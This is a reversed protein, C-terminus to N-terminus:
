CCMICLTSSAWDGAKDIIMTFLDSYVCEVQISFYKVKMKEKLFYLKYM